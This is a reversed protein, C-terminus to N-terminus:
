NTKLFDVKGRKQVHRFKANKGEFMPNFGKKFVANKNKRGWIM